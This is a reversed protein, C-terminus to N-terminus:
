LLHAIELEYGKANIDLLVDRMRPSILILPSPRLYGMRVGVMESTQVIDDGYWTEGRVFVESLVDLGYTHGFPCRYRGAADDDFPDIGFKTNTAITVPRSTIQIQYWLPLTKQKRYGKKQMVEAYEQHARNLLERRDARNLWIWFRWSPHPAGADSALKLIQQGTPVIALDLSDDQYRSKHKVPRLEVGNIKSDILAEALRQSVIIESAITIAIDKSKPVKRLDLVLDSVQKWGTKCIPCVDSEDYMTGCKEGPPEFAATVKLHFLAASQLESKSYRRNIIYSFFFSSKGETENLVQQQIKGIEAFRQDDPSIVVQRTIEGLRKGENEGFLRNTYEEDIRFDYLEKM